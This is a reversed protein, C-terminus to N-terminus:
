EEGIKSIDDNTGPFGIIKDYLVFTVFFMFPYTFFMGIGCFFIGIIFIIFAIALIFLLFFWNKSTVAMSAKLAETWNLHGFVIFPVTLVFTVGLIIQLVIGIFSGLGPLVQELGINVIQLIFSFLFSFILINSFYPQKYYTFLDGVSGNRGFKTNYAIKYLGSLLPAILGAAIGSVAAYILKSTLSINEVSSELAQPNRQIVEIFETISVGYISEFMTLGVVMMVVIYLFTAVFGPLISKKHIDFADSLVGELHLGYGERKIQELKNKVYNSEM